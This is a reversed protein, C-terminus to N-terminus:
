LTGCVCVCVQATNLDDVTSHFSDESSVSGTEYDTEETSSSPEMALTQSGVVASEQESFVEVADLITMQTLFYKM